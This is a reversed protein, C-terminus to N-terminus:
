GAPTRRSRRVPQAEAPLGVRPGAARGPGLQRATGAREEESPPPRWRKPSPPPSNRTPSAPWTSTRATSLRPHRRPQRRVQTVTSASISGCAPRRASGPRGADTRPMVIISQTSAFWLNSAGMMILTTPRGCEPDFANLHPHRGRCKQPLKTEASQRGPGREHRSNGGCAIASSTSGVSKGLNADRM